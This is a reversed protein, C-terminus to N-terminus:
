VVEKDALLYHVRNHIGLDVILIPATVMAWYTQSNIDRLYVQLLKSLVLAHCLALSLSMFSVLEIHVVGEVIALLAVELVILLVLMVM